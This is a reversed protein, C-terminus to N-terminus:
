LMVHFDRGTGSHMRYPDCHRAGPEAMSGPTEWGLSCCGPHPLSAAAKEGVWGLKKSSFCILFFGMFLGIFPIRNVVSIYKM